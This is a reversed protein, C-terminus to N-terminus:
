FTSTAVFTLTDAYDDHAETIASVSVNAVIVARGGAIPGAAEIISKGTTNLDEVDNTESDANCTMGLYDASVTLPSGSTWSVSNVCFGYRETGDAIAGDSNAVTDAPTSASVLGSTGNVNQITVSAGSAANTALDLLIYNVSDTDGSVRSDVTTVTGFSVVYPTATDAGIITSTDIDFTITPDINASVAVQDNDVIGISISGTHAGVSGEDTMALNVTYTNAAVLNTLTGDATTGDITFTITAGAVQPTYSVGCPLIRFDMGTTDIAVGVNNVGDACAVTTVGAGQNLANITRPTGDSFTFDTTAWVGGMVFNVAPFDVVIVDISGTADFDYTAPLTLGITHDATTSTKLRTMTDSM